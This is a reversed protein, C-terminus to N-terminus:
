WAVYTSSPPLMFTPVYVAYAVWVTLPQWDTGCSTVSVIVSQLAFAGLALTNWAHTFAGSSRSIVAVDFWSPASFKM